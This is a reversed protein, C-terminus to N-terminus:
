SKPPELPSDGPVLWADDRGLSAIVRKWRGELTADIESTATEILCGGREVHPNEVIKWGPPPIKHTELYAHLLAADAPHVVLRPPHGTQPLADLLDEVLPLVLEPRVDLTRRVIQRSIALALGLVDRAMKEEFGQLTEGLMALLKRLEAAEAQAQMRGQQLGTNYGEQHARGHLQELEQATPLASEGPRAQKGSRRVAQGLAEMEWRQYASLQEKPIIKNSM